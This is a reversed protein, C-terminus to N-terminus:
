VQHDIVQDLEKGLARSSLRAMGQTISLHGQLRTLNAEPILRIDNGRGRAKKMYMCDGCKNM